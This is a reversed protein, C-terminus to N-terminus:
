FCLRSTCHVTGNLQVQPSLDLMGWYACKRGLFKGAFPIVVMTVLQELQQMSERWEAEADSEDENEDEYLSLHDELSSDSAPSSPLSAVDDEGSDHQLQSAFMYGSASPSSTVNISPPSVPASM